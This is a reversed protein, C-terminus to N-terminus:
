SGVVIQCFDIFIDWFIVDKELKHDCVSAAVIKFLFFSLFLSQLSDQCNM